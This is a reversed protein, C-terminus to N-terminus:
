KQVTRKTPIAISDPPAQVPVPLITPPFDYVMATTICGAGGGINAMTVSEKTRRSSVAAKETEHWTVILRDDEVGFRRANARYSEAVRCIVIFRYNRETTRSVPGIPTQVTLTRPM